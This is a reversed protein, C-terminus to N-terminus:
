ERALGLVRSIMFLGVVLLAARAIQRTSGSVAAAPRATMRRNYCWSDRAPSSPRHSAFILTYCCAAPPVLNDRAGQTEDAVPVLHEEQLTRGGLPNPRVPVVAQAAM